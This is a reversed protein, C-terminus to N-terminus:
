WRARSWRCSATARRGRLAADVDHRHPIRAAVRARLVAAVGVLVVVIGLTTFRRRARGGAPLMEIVRDRSRATTFGASTGAAPFQSEGHIHGSRRVERWARTMTPRRARGPLGDSSASRARAARRGDAGVEPVGGFGTGTKGERLAEAAVRLGAEPLPVYKVEEVLACARTSISVRRVRQGRAEARSRPQRLHVDAALAPQLQRERRQRAVARGGQRGQQRDAGGEAQRTRSRLLRLRLLRARGQQRRRGARARQRRRQRHLRRPEGEGQRRHGRHLLRLDGLRLGARVANLPENPWKPRIQNWTTIKGQAAPEWMKKLEEVTLQTVWNNQPNVVVTLADFAIPLEIYEIGPRGAHKWRRRRSRGRHTQIDTEGRCFKKFGGGTGSIGVTVRIKGRKAKQFEEAVAETIPYVTSSGDIKIVQADAKPALALGVLALTATTLLSIAKMPREAGQIRRLTIAAKHCNRSLAAESSGTSTSRTATSSRETAGPADVFRDNMFYTGNLVWNKAPAYGLKFISGDVDTVGGGFDSDVFQGFQADKEIAGYAYGFEWSRPNSAKGWNFGALWGTDLDDAENNQIFQAWLQLPQNAITMEAQALAEVMDYDNVLLRCGLVDTTTSNGQPGNFFATNNTCPISDSLTTIEGEVSGVDFYGLAGTLKVGGLQGTMGLQGGFLTADSASSRESLWMGYANAFFPGTGFRAAIGEPNIDNDFFYGSVKYWPQPMKGFSMGFSEAPKWDVYALDLAIGKRTWGEGLTQNTSRPDGTGGNTALGITGTLTDSIKATM